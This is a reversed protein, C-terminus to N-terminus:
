SGGQAVDEAGNEDLVPFRHWLGSLQLPRTVATSPTVLAVEVGRPAAMRQLQVLVAMGASNMFPVGGLQLEVRRVPRGSLLAETLERVLPRRAADTLEGDLTLTVVDGATAARVEPEAGGGRGGQETTEGM